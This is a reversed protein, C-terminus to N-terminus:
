QIQKTTKQCDSIPMRYEPRDRPSPSPYLPCSLGTDAKDVAPKADVLVDSAQTDLVMAALLTDHLTMAVLLATALAEVAEGDTKMTDALGAVAKDDAVKAAILATFM